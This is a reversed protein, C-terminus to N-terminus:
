RADVDNQRLKAPQKDWGAPTEGHKIAANEARHNHQKPAAVITADIIQGGMALRGRDRPYGDFAAFLREVARDRALAERYLWLTTADPVADELGLGLFRMFSLRDRVQHEAQEDSLNYLAQVIISAIRENLRVGTAQDPEPGNLNAVIRVHRFDLRVTPM